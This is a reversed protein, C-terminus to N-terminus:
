RGSAGSVVETSCECVRESGPLKYYAWEGNHRPYRVYSVEMRAGNAALYHGTISEANMSDNM